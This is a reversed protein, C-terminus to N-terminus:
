RMKAALRIGIRGGTTTLRILSTSLLTPPDLFRVLQAALAMGEIITSCARIKEDYESRLDLLRQHIRRGADEMKKADDVDQCGYSDAQFPHDSFSANVPTSESSDDNDAGSHRFHLKMERLYNSHEIMKDLEQRWNQLGNKLWSIRLWQQVYAESGEQTDSTDGLETPQHDAIDLTMVRCVLTQTLPRVLAFHREREYEAFLTPLLLPHHVALHSHELRDVFKQRAKECCGYLVAHTSRHGVSYTVSLGLDNAWESSSRCNYVIPLTTLNRDWYYSSFFPM